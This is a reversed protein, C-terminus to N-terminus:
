GGVGDVGGVDVADVGDAAVIGVLFSGFRQQVRDAESHIFDGSVEGSERWGKNRFM